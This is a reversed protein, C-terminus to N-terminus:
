NGKNCIDEIAKKVLADAKLLDSKVIDRIGIGMNVEGPIVNLVGPKATVLGVTAVTSKGAKNLAINEIELIIEAACTLADKRMYMPTAGSHDARGFISLKYRIPAAIGTVIGIPINKEYLVPGQEIHLELYSFIDGKNLKSKHINDPDFGCNKAAQYISIGDDDKLSKIDELRIKGAMAKSGVTAMGFRSSEECPFIILELPRKHKDGEEYISRIAELGVMVGITGDYAGGEPVSDLHSGVVVPPLNESGALRGRLNGIPDISIQMGIEKMKGIVFDRAKLIDESYALRTVGGTELAGFQSIENFEKILRKINIM